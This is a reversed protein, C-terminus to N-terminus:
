ERRWDSLAIVDAETALSCVGLDRESFVREVVAYPPGELWDTMKAHVGKPPSVQEKRGDFTTQVIRPDSVCIAAIIRSGVDTCKWIQKGYHFHDGILFNSLEM